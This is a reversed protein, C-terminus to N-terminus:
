IKFKCILPDTQRMRRYLRSLPICPRILPFTICAFALPDNCFRCLDILCELDLKLLLMGQCTPMRGSWMGTAQCSRLNGGVMNYGSNCSYTATQRFTTGATHSVQGNDPNTLAGCDVATLSMMYMHQLSMNNCRGGVGVKCVIIHPCTM